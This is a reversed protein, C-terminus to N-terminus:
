HLDYLVLLIIISCDCNYTCEIILYMNVMTIYHMYLTHVHVALEIYVIYVHICACINFWEIM